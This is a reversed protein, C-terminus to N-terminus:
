GMRKMTCLTGNKPVPHVILRFLPDALGERFISITLVRRGSIVCICDSDSGPADGIQRESGGFVMLKEHNEGVKLTNFLPVQGIVYKYNCYQLECLM